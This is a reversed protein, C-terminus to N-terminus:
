FRRNKRYTFFLQSLHQDALSEFWLLLLLKESV